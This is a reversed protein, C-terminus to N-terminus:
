GRLRHHRRTRPQSPDKVMPVTIPPATWQPQVRAHVPALVAAGGERETARFFNCCLGLIVPGYFAYALNSDFFSNFLFTVLSVILVYALDSAPGMEPLKRIRMFYRVLRALAYLFPTIWLLLGPLGNESSVKAYSNHADMWAPRDEGLTRDNTAASIFTGPGVGLFPNDITMRIATRLLSMRGELSEEASTEVTGSSDTFFSKVRRLAQDNATALGVVLLGLASTLFMAKSLGKLRFFMLALVILVQAFGARSGTRLVAAGALLFCLLGAVMLWTKKQRIFLFLFPMAYIMHYSLANAQALSGFGGEFRGDQAEKGVILTLGVTWVGALALSNGLSRVGKYTSAVCAVAFFVLLAKLWVNQLFLVSGGRWSSFPVIALMWGTFLVVFIGPPKMMVRLIEGRLFQVL